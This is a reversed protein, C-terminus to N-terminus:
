RPEYQYKNMFSVTESYFLNQMKKLIVSKEKYVGIIGNRGVDKCALVQCNKDIVRDALQGHEYKFHQGEM